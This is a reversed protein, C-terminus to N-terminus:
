RGGQGGPLGGLSRPHDLGTDTGDNSRETTPPPFHLTLHNGTLNVTLEYVGYTLANRGPYCGPPGEPTTRIGVQRIDFDTTFWGEGLDAEHLFWNGWWGATNWDEFEVVLRMAFSVIPPAIGYAGSITRSYGMDERVLTLMVEKLVGGDFDWGAFQERASEQAGAAGTTAPLYEGM